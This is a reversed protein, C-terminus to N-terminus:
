EEKEFVLYLGLAIGALSSLIFVQNLTLLNEGVLLWGPFNYFGTFGGLLGCIFYVLKSQPPENWGRYKM